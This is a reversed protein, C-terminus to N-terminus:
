EMGRAFRKHSRALDGSSLAALLSLEGALVAAGVIEALMDAKEGKTGGSVNLMQLLAQQAPLWTGGGVTGIPLDPLYISFNLDNGIIETTTIGLCGESVHAADQGLAIFLAAIINAYQANYALSGSIASGLLCKSQVLSNLKVANTKLISELVKQTLLVQAWVMRGRGEHFNLFAPKKDIDFNGALSLCKIGTKKEVEHCLEDAAFTAMNMGMAEDTDFSFRVFVNNGVIRVNIDTLKLHSSTAAAVKKLKEINVSLYKKLYHSKKLGDTKFISGRTIGVNHCFTQVGGSQNVAKCGRNVSAVLAGETTALPIYYNGATFQGSIKVPGAIGVPIQVGGIMNECNKGAAGEFNEPYFSLPRLNIKFKKELSLRKGTVSNIQRLKMTM